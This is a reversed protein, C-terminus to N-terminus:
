FTQEGAMFADLIVLVVHISRKEEDVELVNPLNWGVGLVVGICIFHDVM